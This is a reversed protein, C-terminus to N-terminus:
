SVKVRVENISRRNVRGKVSRFESREKKEGSGAHVDEMWQSVALVQSELIGLRQCVNNLNSLLIATDDYRPHGGSM